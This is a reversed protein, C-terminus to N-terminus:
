HASKDSQVCKFVTCMTAISGDFCKNIYYTEEWATHKEHLNQFSDKHKM